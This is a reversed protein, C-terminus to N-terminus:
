NDIRDSWIFYRAIGAQSQIYLVGSQIYTTAIDYGAITGDVSYYGTQFWVNYGSQKFQVEFVPLSPLDSPITCIAHTGLSPVTFEGTLVLQDIEWTSSFALKSDDIAM